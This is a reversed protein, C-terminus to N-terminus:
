GVTSQRPRQVTALCFDLSAKSFSEGFRESFHIHERPVFNGCRLALLLICNWGLPLEFSLFRLGKKFTCARSDLSNAGSRGGKSRWVAPGQKSPHTSHAAEDADQM